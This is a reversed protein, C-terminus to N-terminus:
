SKGIKKVQRATRSNDRQWEKTAQLWVQDEKALGLHIKALTKQKEVMAKVAEKINKTMRKQLLAMDKSLKM